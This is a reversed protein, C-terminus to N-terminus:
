YGYQKPKPYTNFSKKIKDRSHRDENKSLSKTKSLIELLLAPLIVFMAFIIGVIEGLKLFINMNMVVHFEKVQM